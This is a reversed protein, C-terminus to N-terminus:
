KNLLIVSVTIIPSVKDTKLYMLADWSNIEKRRLKDMRAVDMNAQLVTVDVKILDLLLLRAMEVVDTSLTNATAAKYTLDKLSPLVMLAAVLNTHTVGM